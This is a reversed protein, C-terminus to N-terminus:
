LFAGRVSDLSCSHSPRLRQSAVVHSRALATFSAENVGLGLDEMDTLIAECESSLGQEALACLVGNYCNLNLQADARRASSYTRRTLEWDGSKLSAYLERSWQREEAGEEQACQRERRLGRVCERGTGGVGSYLGGMRKLHFCECSLLLLLVRGIAWM